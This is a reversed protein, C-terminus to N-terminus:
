TNAPWRSEGPYLGEGEPSPNPHPSDARGLARLITQLVGDMGTMVDPNTVHLVAYGLGNLYADRRRDRAPDAHTDGDVEVVLRASPCFFDVIARGIVEQRRFKFSGALQANSLHRWLRKEPETPNIRMARARKHLEAIREASLGWGKGRGQLPPSDPRWGKDASELNM